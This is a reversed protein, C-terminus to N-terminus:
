ESLNNSYLAKFFTFGLQNTHSKKSQFLVSYHTWEALNEWFFWYAPRELHLLMSYHHIKSLAAHLPLSPLYFYLWKGEGLDSFPMICNELLTRFIIQIWLTWHKHAVVILQVRKVKKHIVTKIIECDPPSCYFTSSTLAKRWAACVYQWSCFVENRIFRTLSNCSEYIFSVRCALPPPFKQGYVRRWSFHLKEPGM